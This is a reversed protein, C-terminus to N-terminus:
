TKTGRRKPAGPLSQKYRCCERWTGRRLTEGSWIDANRPLTVVTWVGAVGGVIRTNRYTPTM